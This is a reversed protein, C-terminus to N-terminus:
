LSVSDVIEKIPKIYDKPANGNEFSIQIRLNRESVDNYDYPNPAFGEESRASPFIIQTNNNHKM